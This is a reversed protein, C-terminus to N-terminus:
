TTYSSVRRSVHYLKMRHLVRRPSQALVTTEADTWEASLHVQESGIKNSGKADRDEGDILRRLLNHEEERHFHPLSDESVEEADVWAPLSEVGEEQHLSITPQGEEESRKGGFIEDAPAATGNVCDALAREVEAAIQEVAKGIQKAWMESELTLHEDLNGSGSLASAALLGYAREVVSTATLGKSMECLEIWM